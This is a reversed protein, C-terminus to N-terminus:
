DYVHVGTDYAGENDWPDDPHQPPPPPGGLQIFGGEFGAHAPAPPPPPPPPPGNFGYPHFPPPPPQFHEQHFQPEVSVPRPQFHQNHGRGSSAGVNSSRPNSRPSRGPRSNSSSHRQKKYFQAFPGSLIHSAFRKRRDDREDVYRTVAGGIGYFGSDDERWVFSDSDSSSWVSYLSDASGVSGSRGSYVSSTDSGYSGSRRMDPRQAM